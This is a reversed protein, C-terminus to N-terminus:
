SEDHSRLFGFGDQLIELVGEAWISGGSKAHARLIAFIVDQKRARAVGEQIGLEEAMQLLKVSNKRKLETLNILNNPDGADGEDGSIDAPLGNPNAGQGNGGRAHRGRRRRGREPRNGRQQGEGGDNGAAPANSESEPAPARVDDGQVSNETDSM